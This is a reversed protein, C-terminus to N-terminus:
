YERKFDDSVKFKEFYPKRIIGNMLEWYCDKAYESKVDRPVRFSYGILKDNSRHYSQEFEPLMYRYIGWCINNLMECIHSALYILIDESFRAYFDPLALMAQEQNISVGSQLMIKRLNDAVGISRLYNHKSVDGCMKLYDIRKINLMIEHKISPLWFNIEVEENLWSIFVNLAIKLDYESNQHSFNPHETVKILGQLFSVQDIPGKRDTKSLFDVLLIFFLRRQNMDHFKVYRHEEKGQLQILSHNVLDGIHDYANRLIIVENDIM